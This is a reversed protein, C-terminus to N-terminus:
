FLNKSDFREVAGVSKSGQNFGNQHLVTNFNELKKIHENKTEIAKLHEERQVKLEAIQKDIENLGETLTEREQRLCEVRSNNKKLQEQKRDERDKTVDAQPLPIESQNVIEDKVPRRAQGDVDMPSSVGPSKKGKKKKKSKESCKRDRRTESNIKQFEEKLALDVVKPREDHVVPSSTNGNNKEIKITSESHNKRRKKSRKKSSREESSDRKETKLEMANVSSKPKKKEKPRHLLALFDDESSDSQVLDRKKKKEVNELEIKNQRRRNKAISLNSKMESQHSSGLATCSYKHTKEIFIEEGKKESEIAATLPEDDSDSPMCYM